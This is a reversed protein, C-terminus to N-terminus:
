IIQSMFAWIKEKDVAELKVGNVQLTYETPIRHGMHAYGQVNKPNFRLLWKDSWNTENREPKV